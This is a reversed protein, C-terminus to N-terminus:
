DPIRACQTSPTIPRPKTKGAPLSPCRLTRPIRLLFPATRHHLTPVLKRSGERSGHRGGHFLSFMAHVCNSAEDTKPYTAMKKGPAYLYPLGRATVVRLGVIRIFAVKHKKPPRPSPPIGALGSCMGSVSAWGSGYAADGRMSGAGGPPYWM